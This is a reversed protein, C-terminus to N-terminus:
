KGSTAEGASNTGLVLRNYYSVVTEATMKSFMTDFVTSPPPSGFRARDFQVDGVLAQTKRNTLQLRITRISSFFIDFHRGFYTLCWGNRYHCQVDLDAMQEDYTLPIGMAILSDDILGGTFTDRGGFREHRASWDDCYCAVYANVYGRLQDAPIPQHVTFRPSTCGTILVAFSFLISISATSQNFRM